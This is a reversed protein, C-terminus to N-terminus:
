LRGPGAPPLNSNIGAAAREPLVGKLRRVARAMAQPSPEAASVRGTQKSNLLCAALRALEPVSFHRFQRSLKESVAQKLIHVFIARATKEKGTKYKRVALQCFPRASESLPLAFEAGGGPYELLIYSSFDPLHLSNEMQM